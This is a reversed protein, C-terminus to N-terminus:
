QDYNKEVQLDDKLLVEPKPDSIDKRIYFFWCFVGFLLVSMMSFVLAGDDGHWYNFTEKDSYGVILTLISIRIANIIFGIAPAIILCILKQRYNQPFMLLFLVATSFMLIVIEIGACGGLVEVKGTPLAIFVGERHVDYGAIWLFFTSFIATIKALNIATLFKDFVPYLVFLGLILIEKWYQHLQKVGSAMLCLAIGCIFPSFYVQYGSPSISRLLVLAILGIGVLTPLIGSDLKLQDRKDWLLSAIALWLLLSMSFLNQDSSQDLIVLHLSAIAATLGLLWYNPKQLQRLWDM